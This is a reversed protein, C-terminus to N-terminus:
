WRRANSAASLRPLEPDEFDDTRYDFDLLASLNDIAEPKLDNFVLGFGGPDSRVVMAPLTKMKRGIMFAVRIIINEQMAIGPATKIYMGGMSVNRTRGSILGINTSHIAVNIQIPKRTNLRHEVQM